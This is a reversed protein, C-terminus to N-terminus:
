VTNYQMNTAKVAHVSPSGLAVSLDVVGAIDDSIFHNRSIKLVTWIWIVPRDTIVSM